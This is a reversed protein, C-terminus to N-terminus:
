MAGYYGQSSLWKEFSTLPKGEARKQEIIGKQKRMDALTPAEIAEWFRRKTEEVGKKVEEIATKGGAVAQSAGLAVATMTLPEINKLKERKHVM